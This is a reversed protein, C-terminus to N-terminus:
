LENLKDLLSNLLRNHEPQFKANVNSWLENIEDNEIQEDPKYILIQYDGIYVRMMGVSVFVKFGGITVFYEYLTYSEKWNIKDFNKNLAQIIKWSLEAEDHLPENM